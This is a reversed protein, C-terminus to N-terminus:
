CQLSTYLYKVRTELAADFKRVYDILVDGQLKHFGYGHCHVNECWLPYRNINNCQVVIVFVVAWNLIASFLFTCWRSLICFFNPPFVSTKLFYLPLFGNALGWKQYKATAKTSENSKPRNILEGAGRKENARESQLSAPYKYLCPSNPALGISSHYWSIKVIVM